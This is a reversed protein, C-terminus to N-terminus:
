ITKSVTFFQEGNKSFINLYKLIIYPNKEHFSYGHDLLEFYSYKIGKQEPDEGKECLKCMYMCFNHVIDFHVERAFQFKFTKM